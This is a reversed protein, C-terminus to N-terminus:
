PVDLVKFRESCKLIGFTYIRGTSKLNYRNWIGDMKKSSGTKISVHLNTTGSCTTFAGQETEIYCHIMQPDEHTCFTPSHAQQMTRLQQCSLRKYKRQLGSYITMEPRSKPLFVFRKDAVHSIRKFEHMETQIQEASSLNSEAAWRMISTGPVVSTFNPAPLCRRLLCNSGDSTWSPYPWIAGCPGPM